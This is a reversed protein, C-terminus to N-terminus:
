EYSIAEKMPVRSAAISPLWAALITFIIGVIIALFLSMWPVTFNLINQAQDAQSNLYIALIGYGIGVIVGAIGIILGEAIIMLKVQKKTFGIARMIGIEKVRELTNMFLTNSVGIASLAIVLVLLGNMLETMGNFAENTREVTESATTITSLEDGYNEWLQAKILILDAEKSTTIAINYQNPWQLVTALDEEKVFAVYSNYHSTTVSAKVYFDRKGSPTNVTFVDGVEGGWESLAREGLYITPLETTNKVEDTIHFFVANEPKETFSMISFERADGNTTEWTINPIDAFRKVDTTGNLDKVMKLDKDRWPTEKVAHLDGGYMETVGSGVEDPVTELAASMFLALCIGIALMASTNANRNGFQGVSRIAQKGPYGFLLRCLPSLIGQIARLFLPYLLVLGVFLFLLNWDFNILGVVTFLLGTFIRIVYGKKGRKQQGQQDGMAEMVPTKGAQYVPFAAALFPFLIGITASIILPLALELEYTINQTAIASMLMKQFFDGFWIGLPLGIATGTISLLAIEQLVLRYIRGNTYGLSKMVAFEKRREIISAYIMNFAIFASIFISLIAVLDFTWYLGEVDNDQRGDVVVPQVFLNSSSLMSQYDALLDDENLGDKVKFRFDTVKNELGTWSQLTELPVMVRAHRSKAEEWDQPSRLMSGEYVIATIEMSGMEKFTVTDGIGKGWLKAANETIILGEKTVDGEKEPLELLGNDFSSVGSLRVSSQAPSVGEMEVFGQKLLSANGKEFAKSETLENLADEDFSYNNGQVWYDAGGTYLREYYELSSSTTQKTILMGTMVVVGIILAMLTFFFRKKYRTLNRWSVLFSSRM